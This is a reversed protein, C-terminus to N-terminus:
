KFYFIGKTYFDEVWFQLPMTKAEGLEFDTILFYIIFFYGILCM